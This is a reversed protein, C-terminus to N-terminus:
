RMVESYIKELQCLKKGALIEPTYKNGAQYLLIKQTLSEKKAKAFAKRDEVTMTELETDIPM